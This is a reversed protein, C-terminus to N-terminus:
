QPVDGFEEMAEDATPVPPVNAGNNQEYEEVFQRTLEARLAMM